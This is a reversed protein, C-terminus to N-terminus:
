LEFPEEPACALKIATTSIVETFSFSISCRQELGCFASLDGAVLVTLGAQCCGLLRRRFRMQLTKGSPTHTGSIMASRELPTHGLAIHSEASTKLREFIDACGSDDFKSPTSKVALSRLAQLGVVVADGQASWAEPPTFFSMDECQAHLPSICFPFCPFTGFGHPKLSLSFISAYFLPLKPLTQNNPSTRKCMRQRLIRHLSSKLTTACVVRLTFDASTVKPQPATKLMLPVAHSSSIGCTRRASSQFIRCPWSAVRTRRKMSWSRCLSRSGADTQGPVSVPHHTFMSISTYGDEGPLETSM